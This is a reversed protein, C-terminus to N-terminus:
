QGKFLDLGLLGVIASIGAVIGSIWWRFNEVKRLRPKIDEEINDCVTDIKKSMNLTREDIRALMAAEQTTLAM